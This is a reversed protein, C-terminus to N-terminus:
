DDDEEAEDDEDYSPDDEWAAVAGDYEDGYLAVLGTRGFDECAVLAWPSGEHSGTEIVTKTGYSDRGFAGGCYGTVADGTTLRDPKQLASM